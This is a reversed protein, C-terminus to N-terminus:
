DLIVEALTTEKHKGIFRVEHELMVNFKDKVCQQVHHALQYVDKATAGGTNVIVLAQQLHVQAHGIMEGKLNCQDILWGAALKIDEGNPYHPIQPHQTLIAQFLTESIVPNKFFSGANGLKNPDPLKSMRTECVANFIDLPTTNEALAALPGYNVKKTWPKSLKFGVHTIVAKEHLAHKFISDRYGFECDVADLRTIELTETDMYEVYECVDKIEVGYAGINQVPAAGVVGPILALNELGPAAHEISWKVFDHWNEGAGVYCSVAEDSDHIEIGKIAIHIVLGDFDDCFLLNSGGGLILRSECKVQLATKLEDISTVSVFEKAYADIGFTTYSKLNHNKLIQMFYDSSM